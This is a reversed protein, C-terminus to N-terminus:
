GEEVGQGRCGLSRRVPCAHTERGQHLCRYLRAFHAHGAGRGFRRRQRRGTRYRCFGELAGFQLIPSASKDSSEVPALLTEARYVPTMLFAVAVAAATCASTIVGIVARGAALARWIDALDIEEDDNRYLGPPPFRQTTKDDM